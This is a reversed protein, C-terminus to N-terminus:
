MGTLNESSSDVDEIQKGGRIPQFRMKDALVSSGMIAVLLMLLLRIM